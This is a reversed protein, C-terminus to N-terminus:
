DKVKDFDPIHKFKSISKEYCAQIHSIIQHQNEQLNNNFNQMKNFIEKEHSADIDLKPVSQFKFKNEYYSPSTNDTRNRMNEARYHQLVIHCAKELQQVHLNYIRDYTTYIDIMYKVTRHNIRVHSILEEVEKIKKDKMKKCADIYDWIDKRYKKIINNRRREINGYNPYPDDSKYGDIIAVIAFFLGAFLLALSTVENLNFINPYTYMYKVISTINLSNTDLNILNYNLCFEPLKEDRISLRICVVAERFHAALFNVNLLYLSFVGTFIYSLNKYLSKIHNTYPFILWGFYFGAIVNLLSIFVSIGIGGLLGRATVERFFFGNFIIECVVLLGIIYFYLKRSAPYFADHSLNNKKRFKQYIKNVDLIEKNTFYEFDKTEKEQESFDNSTDRKVKEINTIIPLAGLDNINQKLQNADAHSKKSDSTLRESYYGVIKEETADLVKRDPHPLNKQGDLKALKDIGLNAIDKKFDVKPFEFSTNM